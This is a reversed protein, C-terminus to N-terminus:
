LILFVICYYFLFCRPHCPHNRCYLRGSEITNVSIQHRHFTLHRASQRREIQDSQRSHRDPFRALPDTRRRAGAPCRKCRRMNRDIQCRCIDFFFSRDIIQRDQESQQMRLIGARRNRLVADADSLQRERAIQSRNLSRERHRHRRPIGTHRRHNQRRLIRHLRRKGSVNRNIRGFIEFLNERMEFPPLLNGRETERLGLHLIHMRIQIKGFHKSLLIDLTCHLNGRRASM